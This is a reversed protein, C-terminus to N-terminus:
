KNQKLTKLSTTLLKIMEQVQHKINTIIKNPNPLHKTKLHLLNLWYLTEHASKLSIHYFNIFEKRSSGAQAETINAGISTASRLLQKGLTTYVYNKPLTELLDIVALSIQLGKKQFPHKSKTYRAQM